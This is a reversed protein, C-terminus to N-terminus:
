GRGAYAAVVQGVKGASRAVLNMIVRRHKQFLFKELVKTFFDAINDASAVLRVRMIGRHTAERVRMHRRAIHRTRNSSAYDEAVNVCSSNDIDCETPQLQELRLDFALGRFHIIENSASSAAIIEAETTSGATCDQRRSSAHIPGGALMGVTGTTSRRIAWDSDSAWKITSADPANASFSIGLHATQGLYVLCEYADELLQETAFTYARALIGVRHLVDPRTTPGVWAMGGVISRFKTGLEAPPTTHLMFAEEYHEMLKANGPTSWERTYASIPKSLERACLGRIYTESTLTIFRVDTQIIDMGLYFDGATATISFAKALRDYFADGIAADNDWTCGDDVYLDLFMEAGNEFVKTFICSDYDSRHWGEVEVMHYAFTNYWVRGADPEGYLPRLLLWVFEVGREDYERCDPPARVYVTRTIQTGQLYAAAVDFCRRRMGKIVGVASSCKFSSHRLTPATVRLEVHTGAAGGALARKRKRAEAANLQNGLMVCRVKFRDHENNKGRKHKCVLKTGYIDCEVPVKDAAVYQRVGFDDLNRMEQDRADLWSPRDNTRLAEEWSPDDGADLSTFVSVTDDIGSEYVCVDQDVCLEQMSFVGWAAKCMVDPTEALIKRSLNLPLDDRSASDKHCLLDVVDYLDPPYVVNETIHLHMALSEDAAVLAARAIDTATTDYVSDWVGGWPQYLWPWATTDSFTSYIDANDAVSTGFSPLMRTLDGDQGRELPPWTWTTAYDVMDFQIDATNIIDTSDALYMQEPEYRTHSCRGEVLFGQVPAPDLLDVREPLPVSPDFSREQLVSRCSQDVLGFDYRVPQRARGKVSRAAGGTMPTQRSVPSGPEPTTFGDNEDPLEVMGDDDDDPVMPPPIPSTPPGSFNTPYQLGAVGPFEFELHRTHPTVVPRSQNYEATFNYYGPQRRDRLSGDGGYAVHLGRRSRDHPKALSASTDNFEHELAFYTLCGFARDMSIDAKYGHFLSFRSNDPDDVLPLKMRKKNADVMSLMFFTDDVSNQVRAATATDRFRKEMKGNQRHVYESGSTILIGQAAYKTVTAAKAEPSHFIAENDVHIRKCAIGKSECYQLVMGICKPVSTKSPIKIFDGYGSYVDLWGFMIKEGNYVCGVRTSWLDLCIIEGPHTCEPVHQESGFRGTKGSLCADCAPIDLMQALDEPADASCRTLNRLIESGVHYRMHYRRSSTNAASGQSGRMVHFDSKSSGDARTGPRQLQTFVGNEDVGLGGKAMQQTVAVVSGLDPRSGTSAHLNTNVCPAPSKPLVHQSPPHCDGLFPGTPSVRHPLKHRRETRVVDRTSSDFNVRTPKANANWVVPPAAKVHLMGRSDPRCIGGPTIVGRSVAHSLTCEDYTAPKGARHRQLAKIYDDYKVPELEGTQFTLVDASKVQLM